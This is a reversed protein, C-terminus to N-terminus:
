IRPKYKLEEFVIKFTTGEERELEITGNLQQVLMIVIQMGLSEAKRFDLNEPFGIGDDQVVLMFKNGPARALVIRAEGKRGVPFAHKLINSVLENLILGCPIATNIDFYAEELELRLRISESDIMFFQWLYTILSRSYEAFDIMALNKSQYLKEHVLALSRIRNQTEKFLFLDKKDKLQTAQLNLLSSIIQMNNKVRHHIERLLVEKERLASRIQEVTRLHETIDILCGQIAPNGEHLIRGGLVGVDIVTGDRKLGKFQYQVREVQGSERLKVQQDVVPWSEPLTLKSIHIGLLDQPRDYGFIEALRQNCFKLIHNQTIYIGMLSVDVLERYKKEAEQFAAAARKRDSIDHMITMMGTPRGRKDKMLVGNFEAPFVSGDKRVVNFEMNRIVGDQNQFKLFESQARGRDEPAILTFEDIEILEEPSSYGLMLAKQRNCFIMKGQLDAFAIGNSSAEVLSRYLSEREQLATEVEAQKVKIAELRAVKKGLRALEKLAEEKTSKHSKVAM